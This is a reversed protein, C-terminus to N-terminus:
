RDGSAAAPGRETSPRSGDGVAVLVLRYTAGTATNELLLPKGVRLAVTRAGNAYTGGVIGIRVERKGPNEAVLVLVPDTAPFTAGVELAQPVGNVRIVTAQAAQTFSAKAPTAEPRAAIPAPAEPAAKRASRDSRGGPSPREAAPSGSAAGGSAAGVLAVKQVFPDRGVFLSFSRLKWSTAAPIALPAEVVAAQGARPVSSAPGSTSIATESTTAPEAASSSSGGLVRPLQIALLVVLVLSGVAVFIKQKRERAARQESTM